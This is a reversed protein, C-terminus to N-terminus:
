AMIGARLGIGLGFCQSCDNVYLYIGGIIWYEAATQM